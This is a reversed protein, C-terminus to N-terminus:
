HGPDSSTRMRRLFTHLPELPAEDGREEDRRAEELLMEIEERRDALLRDMEEDSLNEDLATAVKGLQRKLTANMAM